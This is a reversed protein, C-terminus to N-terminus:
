LYIGFIPNYFYIYKEDGGAAAVCRKAYEMKMQIDEMSIENVLVKSDYEALVLIAALFCTPNKAIAFSPYYLEKTKRNYEETVEHDFELVESDPSAFALYSASSGGFVYVGHKYTIETDFSYDSFHFFGLMQYNEVLDGIIGQPSTTFDKKARPTYEDVFSNAANDDLLDYMQMLISKSPKLKELKKLL